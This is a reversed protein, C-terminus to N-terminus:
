VSKLETFAKLGAEFFLDWRPNDDFGKARGIVELTYNMKEIDSEYKEKYRSTCEPDIVLKYIKGAM